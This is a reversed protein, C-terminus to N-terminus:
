RGPTRGTFDDMTRNVGLIGAVRDFAGVPLTRLLPLTGVAPPLHVRRRDREVANWTAQVVQDPQLIPLLWRFRTKVGAFMGTDIYYPCVVTTRVRSGQGALEVRLSEDFGIAAWKSAAYDTLKAVGILGSASAITVVRGRNQEVMSALFPQTVWYLALTNVEFTRRVDAETLEGLPKGSVVGANNVLVDVSGAAALAEAAAERVADRDTVDVVQGVPARALGARLRATADVAEDLAAADRDWLVVSAGRRAAEAALGRGIGSAAGTIVVTAGGLLTRKSARSTM